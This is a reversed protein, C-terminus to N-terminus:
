LKVMTANKTMLSFTLHTAMEVSLFHVATCNDPGTVAVRYDGSPTAHFSFRTGDPTQLTQSPLTM